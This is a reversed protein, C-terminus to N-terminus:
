KREVLVVVRNWDNQSFPQERDGKWELILRNPDIGHRKLENAVAEVRGRSLSLNHSTNGTKKDAYGILLLKSDPNAKLFTIADSVKNLETVPIQASNLTFRIYDPLFKYESQQVVVPRTEVTTVREGLKELLTQQRELINQQNAILGRNENIRDNIYAIEDPSLAAPVSFDRKINYQVGLFVNGIMDMVRNGEYGDLECSAWNVQPELYIAWKSNLNLEARLGIRGLFGTHSPNTESPRSNIIGGGVYPILDIAHEQGWYGRFLNALNGMLDVAGAGYYFEQWFGPEGNLTMLKIDGWNADKSWDSSINNEGKYGIPYPFRERDKGIYRDKLEGGKNQRYNAGRLSGGLLQIRAGVYPNFWKGVSIEGSYRLRDTIAIQDDQEGQLISAAGGLSIFWNNKGKNFNSAPDSAPDSQAHVSFAGVSLIVMCLLITVKKM